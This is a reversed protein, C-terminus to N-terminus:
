TLKEVQGEVRKVHHGDGNQRGEFGSGCELQLVEREPVLKAHQTARHLGLSVDVSRNSHAHSHSTQISQGDEKTITL